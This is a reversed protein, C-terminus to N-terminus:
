ELIELSEVVLVSIKLGGYKVECHSSGGEGGERCGRYYFMLITRISIGLTLLTLEQKYRLQM